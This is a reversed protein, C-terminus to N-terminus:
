DDAGHNPLSHFIAPQFYARGPKKPKSDNDDILNLKTSADNDPADRQLVTIIRLVPHRRYKNANLNLM